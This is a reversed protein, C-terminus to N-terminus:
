RDQTVFADDTEKEQCDQCTIKDPLSFTPKVIFLQVIYHIGDNESSYGNRTRQTNKIDEFKEAVDATPLM